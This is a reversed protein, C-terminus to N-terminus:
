RGDRGSTRSKREAFLQICGSESSLARRLPKKERKPASETEIAVVDTGARELLEILEERTYFSVLLGPAAQEELLSAIGTAYKLGYFILYSTLADPGVTSPYHIDKVILYGGERVLTAAEVLATQAKRKSEARTAGVLHHLVDGMVVFDFSEPQYPLPLDTASAQRYHARVDADADPLMEASIDMGYAESIETTELAYELLRGDGCGIELLRDGDRCQQAIFGDVTSWSDIREVAESGSGSSYVDANADFYESVATEDM